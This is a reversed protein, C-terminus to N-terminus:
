RANSPSAEDEVAPVTAIVLPWGDEPKEGIEKLVFPAEKDRARVRSGEVDAFSDGHIPAARWAETAIARIAAEHELLLADHPTEAAALRARADYSAKPVEDMNRPANPYEEKWGAIATFGVPLFTDSDGIKWVEVGSEPDRVIRPGRDKYKAPLRSQWLDPPEVVHDDVSIIRPMENSRAEPHANSM